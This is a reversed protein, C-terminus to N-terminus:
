RREAAPPCTTGSRELADRIEADECLLTLAAEQKGLNWLTTSKTLRVCNHDTWVQGMSLGSASRVCDHTGTALNVAASASASAAPPAPPAPAAVPQVPALKRAVVRHRKPKTPARAVEAKLAACDCSANANAEAASAALAAPAAVLTALTFLVTRYRKM